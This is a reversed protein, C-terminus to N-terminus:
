SEGREALAAPVVLSLRRPKKAREAENIGRCAVALKLKEPDWLRRVGRGLMGVPVGEARLRLIMGQVGCFTRDLEEAIQEATAKDLRRRVLYEVEEPTWPNNRRGPKHGQTKRKLPVGDRRLRGVLKNIAYSTTNLEQAIDATDHEKMWLGILKQLEGPTWRHGNDRRRPRKEAIQESM